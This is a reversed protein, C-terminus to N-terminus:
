DQNRSFRRPRDEVLQDLSHNLWGGDTNYVPVKDRYGGLLRYLPIGAVKSKLDWIAIDVAALALVAIGGRGVWDMRRWMEYWVQENNLPNMGSILSRISSQIISCIERAGHPIISYTFGHGQIGEDTDIRVFIVDMKNFHRIADRMDRHVPIQYLDASVKTIKM